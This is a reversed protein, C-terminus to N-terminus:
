TDFHEDDPDFNPLSIILVEMNGIARHRVNPPIVVTMKPRLAHRQGDLEIQADEDCSLVVYVESHQRHYHTKANSSISTLHLTGPFDDRDALARRAIGCPCPVGPLATLDILEPGQRGAPASTQVEADPRNSDNM